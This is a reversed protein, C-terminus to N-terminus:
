KDLQLQESDRPAVPGDCAFTLKAIWASLLEAQRSPSSQPVSLDDLDAPQLVTGPHLCALFSVGPHNAVSIGFFAEDPEVRLVHSLAGPLGDPGPTQLFLDVKGSMVLWLRNADHIPFQRSASAQSSERSIITETAAM